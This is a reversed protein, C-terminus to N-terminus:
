RAIAPELERGVSRLFKYRIKGLSKNLVHDRDLFPFVPARRVGYRRLAKGIRPDRRSLPFGELLTEVADQRKDQLRYVEALNLYFEPQTRKMRVASYCLDEADEWKQQAAAMALGLYSIYFPNNGDLELARNFHALAKSAYHNNLQTLGEKFEAVADDLSM